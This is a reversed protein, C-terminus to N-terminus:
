YELLHNKPREKSQSMVDLHGQQVAQWRQLAPLKLYVNHWLKTWPATLSNRAWKNSKLRQKPSLNRLALSNKYVHLCCAWFQAWLRFRQVRCKWLLYELWNWYDSSATYRTNIPFRNQRWHSGIFVSSQLSAGFHHAESLLIDVVQQDYKPRQFSSMLMPLGICSTRM